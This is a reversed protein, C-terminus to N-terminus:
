PLDSPEIVGSLTFDNTVYNESTSTAVIGSITGPIAAAGTYGVNRAVIAEGANTTALDIIGDASSNQNYLVNDIVLMGEILDNGDVWIASEEFDGLFYNGAILARVSSTNNTLWVGAYCNDSSGSTLDCWNNIIVLDAPDGTAYVMSRCKNVGAAPYPMSCCGAVVVNDAGSVQVCGNSTSSPNWDIRLNYVRVNDASITINSGTVLPGHWLNGLGICTVGAVDFAPAASTESHASAVVIVDNQDATCKGIAYDLTSFPTEPSTGHAGTDGDDDSANNVYFFKGLPVVGKPGSASLTALTQAMTAIIVPRQEM